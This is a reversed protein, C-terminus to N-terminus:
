EPAQLTKTMLVTDWVEGTQRTVDNRYYERQEFGASRYLAIARENHPFVLLSVHPLGRERAWDIACALLAKGIGRGRHAEDVLMGIVHGYEEHPHIGIYGCLDEGNTAIFAAGWEGSLVRRWGKRYRDQDFGPETGIWFREAAVAEFLAIVADFDGAQLERIRVDSRVNM